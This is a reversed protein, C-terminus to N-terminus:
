LSGEVAAPKQKRVLFDALSGVTRFDKSVIMEDPIEFGMDVELHLILQLIMISDMYLDENLRADEHFAKMSPLELHDQLIDHIIQLIEQRTM